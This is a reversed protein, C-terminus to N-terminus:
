LSSCNRETYCVLKVNLQKRSWYACTTERKQSPLCDLQCVHGICPSQTNISPFLANLFLITVCLLLSNESSLYNLFQSHIIKTMMKRETVKAKPSVAVSKLWLECLEFTWVGIGWLNLQIAKYVDNTECSWYSSKHAYKCSGLRQKSM